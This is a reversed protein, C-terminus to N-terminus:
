RATRHAPAAPWDGQAPRPLPGQDDTGMRHDFAFIDQLLVVEGEMRGVETVHTVRRSGDRMRALHVILDLAAAMQERVARM